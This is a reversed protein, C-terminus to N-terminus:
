KSSEKSHSQTGFREWNKETFYFVSWVCGISALLVLCWFDNVLVNDMPVKSMVSDLYFNVAILILVTVIRPLYVMQVKHIM